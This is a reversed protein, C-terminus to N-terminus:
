CSTGIKAASSLNCTCCVAAHSFPGPSFQPPQVICDILDSLPPPSLSLPLPFPLPFASPRFLLPLGGVRAFRLPACVCVRVGCWTSPLQLRRACSLSHAKEESEASPTLAGKGWRRAKIEARSPAQSKHLLPTSHQRKNRAPARARSQTPLPLAGRNEQARHPQKGTQKSAFPLDGKTDHELETNQSATCPPPTQLCTIQRLTLVSDNVRVIVGATLPGAATMGIGM